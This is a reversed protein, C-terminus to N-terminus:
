CGRKSIVAFPTKLLIKLDLWFSQHQIYDIDLRVMEDFNTSNRSAVQWLGTIGPTANLREKHWPKYLEVEYPIPPRPGVLSMDGKVVNWFQPLEDLSTKRLFDGVRTIRSDHNLKFNNEDTVPGQQLQAMKNLDNDIYAKIFERHCNDDAKHIMSRFKYFTFTTIEKNVVGKQSSIKCGVRKQKFIVPGPSDLVILISIIIFLPLLIILLIGAICFDWLRKTQYYLVNSIQNATIEM